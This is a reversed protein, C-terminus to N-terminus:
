AGPTTCLPQNPYTIKAAQNKIPCFKSTVIDTMTASLLTINIRPSLSPNTNQSQLNREM